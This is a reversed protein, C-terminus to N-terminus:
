GSNSYDAEAQSRREQITQAGLHLDSTYPVLTSPVNSEQLWYTFQVNFFM